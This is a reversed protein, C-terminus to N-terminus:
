IANLTCAADAAWAIAPAPGAEPAPDGTVAAPPAGPVSEVRQWPCRLTDILRRAMADPDDHGIHEVLAEATDQLERKTPLAASPAGCRGLAM